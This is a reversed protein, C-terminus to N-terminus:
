NSSGKSAGDDSKDHKKLQNRLATLEVKLKDRFKSLDSYIKAWAINGQLRYIKVNDMDKKQAEALMEKELKEVTPKFVSEELLKWDDNELLGDIAGLNSTLETIRERIYPRRDIEENGRLVNSEDM